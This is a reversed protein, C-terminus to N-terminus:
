KNYSLVVQATVKDKNFSQPLPQYPIGKKVAKIVSVNADRLTTGVIHINSATGDRHITFQVKVEYNTDAKYPIWNRQVEHPLYRFYEEINKIERMEGLNQKSNVNKQANATQKYDDYSYASVSLVMCLIVSLIFVKKM